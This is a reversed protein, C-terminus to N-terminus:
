GGQDSPEPEPERLAHLIFLIVGVVVAADAVNFVPWWQLDIFDTVPGSLFGDDARFVRDILNGIAGGAILGLLIPGWRDTRKRAINFLVLSMVFAIVAFAPGFEPGSSFAAGRNFVLHFRIDLILDICEDGDPTCPGAVLASRAWAKSIQDVAVVLAAVILAIWLPRRRPGGIRDSLVDVDQTACM